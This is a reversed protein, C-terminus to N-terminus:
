DWGSIPLGVYAEEATSPFPRKTEKGHRSQQAQGTRGDVVDLGSAISHLIVDDSITESLRIRAASYLKDVVIDRDVLGHRVPIAIQSAGEKVAKLVAVPGRNNALAISRVAATLAGQAADSIM